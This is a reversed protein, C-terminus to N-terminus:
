AFVVTIGVLKNVCNRRFMSLDNILSRHEPCYNFYSIVANNSTHKVLGFSVEVAFIRCSLFINYVLLNQSRNKRVKQRFCGLMCRPAHVVFVIEHFTNRVLSARVGDGVISPLFLFIFLDRASEFM